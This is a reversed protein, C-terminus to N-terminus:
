ILRGTHGLSAESHQLRKLNISLFIVIQTVLGRSTGLYSYSVSHADLADIVIHRNLRSVDAPRIRVIPLPAASWGASSFQRIFGVIKQRMSLPLLKALRRLIIKM